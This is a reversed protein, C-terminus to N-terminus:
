PRAAKQLSGALGVSATHGSASNMMPLSGKRPPFSGRQGGPEAGERLIGRGVAGSWNGVVIGAIATAGGPCTWSLLM